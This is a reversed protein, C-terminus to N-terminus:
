TCGTVRDQSSLALLGDADLVWVFALLGNPLIALEPFSSGWSISHAKLAGVVVFGPFISFFLLSQTSVLCCISIIMSLPEAM